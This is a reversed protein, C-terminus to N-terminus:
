TLPIVPMAGPNLFEDPGPLIQTRARLQALFPLGAQALDQFVAVATDAADGEM